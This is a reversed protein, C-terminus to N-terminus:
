HLVDNVIEEAILAKAQHIDEGPHTVAVVTMEDSSGSISVRAVIVNDFDEAAVQQRARRGASEYGQSMYDQTDGTYGQSGPEPLPPPATGTTTCPAGPGCGSPDALPPGLDGYTQIQNMLNQMPTAGPPLMRNQARARELAAEDVATGTDGVPPPTVGASKILAEVDPDGPALDQLSVGPKLPQESVTVSLTLPSAANADALRHEAEFDQRLRDAVMADTSFPVVGVGLPVTIKGAKRVELALAPPGAFQILAAAIIASRILGRIM